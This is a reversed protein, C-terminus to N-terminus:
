NKARQTIERGVQRLAKLLMTNERRTRVAVRFFYPGIHHFSNCDRILIGHPILKERLEAATLNLSPHLQVLLYNAASPYPIFGPISRLDHTLRERELELFKRTRTIYGKDKLSEVAALQALANVTWPEKHQRFKQIVEPNSIM